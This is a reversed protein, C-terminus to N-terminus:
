KTSSTRYRKSNQWESQACQGVCCWQDKNRQIGMIFREKEIEKM